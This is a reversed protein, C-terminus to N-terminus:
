QPGPEGGPSRRAGTMRRRRPTSLDCMAAFVDHIQVAHEGLEKEHSVQTREIKHVREALEKSAVLASRLRVFARMIAINAEIARSSSLVGSLM